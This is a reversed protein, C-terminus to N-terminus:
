AGSTELPLPTVNWIDESYERIARDSSFHGCRAVNLISMRSWREPDRWALGVRAQCDIYDRFDACM